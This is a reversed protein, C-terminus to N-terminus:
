SVLNRFFRVMLTGANRVQLKINKKEHPRPVVRVPTKGHFMQAAEEPSKAQVRYVMTTPVLTEVVVDYHEIKAANKVLVNKRHQDVSNQRVGELYFAKGGSALEIAPGEERHLRNGLYWFKDGNEKVSVNYQKGKEVVIM